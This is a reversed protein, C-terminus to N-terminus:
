HNILVIRLITDDAALGPAVTAIDLVAIPVHFVAAVALIDIPIIPWGSMLAPHLRELRKYLQEICVKRCTTVQLVLM